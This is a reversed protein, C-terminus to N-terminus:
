MASSNLVIELMAKLVDTRIGSLSLPLNGSSVTRSTCDSQRQQPDVLVYLLTKWTTKSERVSSCAENAHSRREEM